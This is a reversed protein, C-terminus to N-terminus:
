PYNYVLFDCPNRYGLYGSTPDPLREVATNPVELFAKKIILKSSLSRGILIWINALHLFCYPNYVLM